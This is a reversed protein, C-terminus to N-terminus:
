WRSRGTCISLTGADSTSASSPAPSPSASPTELWRESPSSCGAASVSAIAKPTAISATMASNAKAAARPRGSARLSTRAESAATAAKAASPLTSEGCNRTQSTGSPASAKAHRIRARAAAHAPAM